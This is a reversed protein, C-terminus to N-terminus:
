LLEHIYNSVSYPTTKDTPARPNRGPIHKLDRPTYETGSSPRQVLIVPTPTKTSNCPTVPLPRLRIKALFELCPPVYCLSRHEHHGEEYIQYQEGRARVLSSAQLVLILSSFFLGSTSSCLLFLIYYSKNVGQLGPGSSGGARSVGVGLRLRPSELVRSPIPWLFFFYHWVDLSHHHVRAAKTTLPM